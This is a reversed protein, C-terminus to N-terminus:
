VVNFKGEIDENGFYAYASKLLKFKTHVPPLKKQQLKFDKRPNLQTRPRHVLVDRPWKHMGTLEVEPVDEEVLSRRYRSFFHSPSMEEGKEDTLKELPINIEAKIIVTRPRYKSMSEHKEYEKADELDKWLLIQAPEGAKYIPPEFQEKVWPLEMATKQEVPITQTDIIVKAYEPSTVHYYVNNKLIDFWPM